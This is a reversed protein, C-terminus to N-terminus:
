RVRARARSHKRAWEFKSNLHPGYTVDRTMDDTMRTIYTVDSQTISVIDSNMISTLSQFFKKFVQTVNIM